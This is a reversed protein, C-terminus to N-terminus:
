KKSFLSEAAALHGTKESRAQGLREIEGTLLAITEDIEEVSLTDLPQGILYGPAKAPENENDFM